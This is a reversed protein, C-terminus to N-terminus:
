SLCRVKRKPPLPWMVLQMKQKSLQKPHKTKYNVLQINSISFKISILLSIEGKEQATAALESANDKVEDVKELVQEQVDAAISYLLYKIMEM